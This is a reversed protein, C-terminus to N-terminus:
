YKEWPPTDSSNLKMFKSDEVMLASNELVSGTASDPLVVGKVWLGRFGCACARKLLLDLEEKTVM